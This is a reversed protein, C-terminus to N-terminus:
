LTGYLPFIYTQGSSVNKSTRFIDKALYSAPTVKYIDLSGNYNQNGIGQRWLAYHQPNPTKSNIAGLYLSERGAIFSDNLLKGQYILLDESTNASAKLHFPQTSKIEAQLP